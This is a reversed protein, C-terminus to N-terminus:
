TVIKPMNYDVDESKLNQQDAGCINDNDILISPFRVLAVM